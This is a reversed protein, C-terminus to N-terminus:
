DARLIWVSGLGTAGGGAGARDAAYTWVSHVLTHVFPPRVRPKTSLWRWKTSVRNVRFIFGGSAGFVGQAVVEPPLLVERDSLAAGASPLKLSAGRGTCTSFARGGVARRSWARRHLSVSRPGEMEYM